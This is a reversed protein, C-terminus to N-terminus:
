AGTLGYRIILLAWVCLLWISWAREWTICSLDRIKGLIPGAWSYLLWKRLIRVFNIARRLANGKRRAFTWRTQQFLGDNSEKHIKILRKVLEKALSPHLGLRTLSELVAQTPLYLSSTAANRILSHQSYWFQYRLRYTQIWRFSSASKKEILVEDYYRELTDSLFTREAQSTSQFNSKDM